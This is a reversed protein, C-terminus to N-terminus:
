YAKFQRIAAIGHCDIEGGDESTTIIVGLKSVSSSISAM